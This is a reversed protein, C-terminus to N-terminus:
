ASLTGLTLGREGVTNALTNDPGYTMDGDNDLAVSANDLVALRNGELLGTCSNILTLAEQSSAKNNAIYNYAIYGDTFATTLARVVGVAVASTAGSIYNGVVRVRDCGTLELFTTCEAATAGFCRNHSFECDDGTIIIGKTVIDDADAGFVIHCNSIKCGDGSVTIPAAVTVGGNGTDCLNLRCNELHVDDQDLLFTAAAATWTFTPRLQGTGMGIIRTGAVLNSMQDASDIDEAHDALVLVYDGLGSRVRFLGNNLTNVLLGGWENPDGTRHTTSSVIAALKGPPLQIGFHSAIGAGLGGYYPLPLDGYVPNTGM